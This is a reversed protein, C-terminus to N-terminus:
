ATLNTRAPRSNAQARKSLEQKAVIRPLAQFMSILLTSLLKLATKVLKDTSTVTFNIIQVQDGQSVWLAKSNCLLFIGIHGLFLFRKLNMKPEMTRLDHMQPEQDLLSRAKSLSSSLFRCRAERSGQQLGDM